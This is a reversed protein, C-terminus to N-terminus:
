CVFVIVQLSDNRNFYFWEGIEARCKDMCEYNGSKVATEIKGCAEEMSTTSQFFHCPSTPSTFDKVTVIRGRGVNECGPPGAVRSVAYHGHRAYSLLRKLHEISNKVTISETSLLASTTSSSTPMAM